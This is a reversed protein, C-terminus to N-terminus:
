KIGGEEMETRVYYGGKMCGEEYDWWDFNTGKKVWIDFEGKFVVKKIDKRRQVDRVYWVMAQGPTLAIATDFRVTPEEHIYKMLMRRQRAGATALVEVTIDKIEKGGSDLLWLSFRAAPPVDYNNTGAASCFVENGKGPVEFAAVKSWKDPIFTEIFDTDHETFIHYEHQYLADVQNQMIGFIETVFGATPRTKDLGSAQRRGTGGHKGDMASLDHEGDRLKM